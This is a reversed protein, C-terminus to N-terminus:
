SNCALINQCGFYVSRNSIQRTREGSTRYDFWQPEVACLAAGTGGGGGKSQAYIGLGSTVELAGQSTLTLAGGLGGAGPRVLAELDATMAETERERTEM